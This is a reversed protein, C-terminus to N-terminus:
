RPADIRVLLVDHSEIEIPQKDTLTIPKGTWLDKGAQPGHLGLKVLNLHFPHTSYRSDGVAVIAVAIAGGQLQRTWVEVEGDSYARVGQRGLPDQDIAIVDRNMLIAKIGPTMATLDNGALLPAALMAWLTFHTRNEALNLRGNGVELMDPDNWHGPGAYSELGAQQSVISYIRDWEPTIDGTTRWLNGGISPAWEWVADWGYQCLSLVIPRGTAKLAKSMKDYAAIMLRMQGAHDNPAQKELVAGIFSCLDYKLYDIGWAAYMQADQEEHGLSGEYGGCTKPGPSSYIGIKLGKSHVYDALAKMDPFKANPHLVGSADREGEWTDDINVYIYGADKMGTSVLQDAAARVGKDDVKAAFYNWSNWGMPPTQAVQPLVQPAAPTQSVATFSTLALTALFLSAFIRM